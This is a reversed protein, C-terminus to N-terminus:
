PAIVFGQNTIQLSAPANDSCQRPSIWLSAIHQNGGHLVGGFDQRFALEVPVVNAAESAASEFIVNRLQNHIPGFRSAVRSWLRFRAHLSPECGLIQKLVESSM